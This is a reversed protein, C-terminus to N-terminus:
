SGPRSAPRVPSNFLQQAQQIASAVTAVVDAWPLDDAYDGDNRWQRLADLRNADGHRKRARLHARLRGHDDPNNKPDFQLFDVAYNRAHCFTGFYARSVASRRLAEAAAADSKAQNEMRLALAILSQWDFAM